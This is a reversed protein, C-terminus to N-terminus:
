ASEVLLVNAYNIQRLIHIWLRYLDFRNIMNKKVLRPKTEIPMSIREMTPLKRTLILFLCRCILFEHRADLQDKNADNVNDEVKSIVIALGLEHGKNSILTEGTTKRM